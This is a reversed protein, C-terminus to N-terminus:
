LLKARGHVNRVDASANEAGHCRGKGSLGGATLAMKGDKRTARQAERGGRRM